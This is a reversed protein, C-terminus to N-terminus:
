LAIGETEIEKALLREREQLMKFHNEDMVLPSLITGHELWLDCAWDLIQSKETRNLDKLLVLVDLDSEEDGEGRARSGFLRIGMVRKGFRSYLKEKFEKLINEETPSLFPM